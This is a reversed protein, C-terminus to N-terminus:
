NEDFPLSSLKLSFVEWNEGTSLLQVTVPLTDTKRILSNSDSLSSLIYEVDIFLTLSVKSDQTFKVTSDSNINKITLGKFIYGSNKAGDFFASTLNEYDEKLISLLYTKPIKVKEFNKSSGASYILVSAVDRAIKNIRQEHEDKLTLSAWDDRKLLYKTVRITEKFDDTMPNTIKVNHDGYWVAGILFLEDTSNEVKEKKEIEKDDIYLRSGKPLRLKLDATLSDLFLSNQPASFHKNVFNNLPSNILRIENFSSAAAATFIIASCVCIIIIQTKKSVM